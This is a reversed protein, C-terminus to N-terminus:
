TKERREWSLITNVYNEFTYTLIGHLLIEFGPGMFTKENVRVNQKMNFSVELVFSIFM